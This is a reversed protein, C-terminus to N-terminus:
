KCCYGSLPIGTNIHNVIIVVDGVDIYGDCNIDATWPTVPDPWESLIYQVLYNLDFVNIEHDPSGDVNGCEPYWRAVLPFRDQEDPISPHHPIDYIDDCIGDSGSENQNEGKYNDVCSTYDDWFNGGSPYGNDWQCGSSPYFVYAHTTNNQFNNHHILSGTNTSLVYIGYEHNTIDNAFIANKPASLLVVGYGMGPSSIITNGYIRNETGGLITVGEYGSWSVSSIFNNSVTNQSAGYLYVNRRSDGIINTDIINNDSEIKLASYMSGSSAGCGFMGLNSINVGEATIKVVDSTCNGNIRSSWKSYGYITLSKWITVNENYDGSPIYITDGPSADDIAAQITQYYKDATENHVQGSQGFLMGGAGALLFITGFVFFKTLFRM